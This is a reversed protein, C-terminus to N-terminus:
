WWRWVAIIGLILFVSVLNLYAFFYFVAKPANPQPKRAGAVVKGATPFSEMKDPGHPAQRLASTLDEGATHRTHRGNKWLRSATVDYILGDVAVLSKRGELGDFSRLEEVTLDGSEKQAAERRKRMKPGLVFTVLAATSAMLLYLLIKVSLLIGFRTTYFNEADPMRALTLLAGTVGTIIIGVWGLTLEGKPLGKSAYAPKLLIHVYFIAGFWVVGALIHLYGTILRAVRKLLSPPRYEGSAALGARYREGAQTLEGGGLPNVHCTRCALGTKRSYEETARAPISAALFLSVTFFLLLAKRM